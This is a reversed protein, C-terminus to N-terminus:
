QLTHFVHNTLAPHMKYYTKANYDNQKSTKFSNNKIYDKIVDLLLESRIHSSYLPSINNNELEPYNFQVNTENYEETYFMAGKVIYEVVPKGTNRQEKAERTEVTIIYAFWIAIILIILIIILKVINSSGKHTAM